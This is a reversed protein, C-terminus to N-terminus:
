NLFLYESHVFLLRGVNVNSCVRGFALGRKYNEAVPLRISICFQIIGGVKSM